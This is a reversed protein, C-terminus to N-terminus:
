LSLGGLAGRDDCKGDVLWFGNKDEEFSGVDHIVHKRTHILIGALINALQGTVTHPLVTTSIESAM